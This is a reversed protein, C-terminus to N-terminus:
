QSPKEFQLTYHFLNGRSERLKFGAQECIRKTTGRLPYDPDVAWETVALVGRPRLVRYLEGLARQRDPIEQLACIVVVSDLCEEPLPLEYANAVKPIVNQVDRNEPKQLKKELKDIMARQIDVAYIRGGDGVARAIDLTYTGPGCGLEMVTMAEQIGSREVIKHPPQMTKRLRSDLFSAVFLPVPFKYHRRLIRPAVTLYAAVAAIAAGAYLLIENTV